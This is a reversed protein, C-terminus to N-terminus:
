FVECDLTLPTSYRKACEPGIGREVSEPTTLTRGCCGCRGEHFFEAQEHFKALGEEGSLLLTKLFWRFAKVSPADSSIRSGRTTRIGEDLRDLDLTGAYTYNNENSPGTLVSLFYRTPRVGAPQDKPTNLRYTFHEGTRRSRLTFRADGGLMFQTISGTSELKHPTM